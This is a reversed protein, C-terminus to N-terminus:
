SAISKESYVWFSYMGKFTEPFTQEFIHWNKLSQMLVDNPFMNKYRQKISGLPLDFGIFELELRTLIEDIQLLTFRKEHQHFLLDRCTSTTYFDQLLEVSKILEGNPMNLINNRCKRIDELTDKFGNRAIYRFAELIEQRAVDSYLGINMWGYDKLLSILIFWGEIPDQMHHLVGSCDIVDFKDDLKKLDLIDGQIFRINSIGMEKAMRMSYSLSSLSLDIATVQCAHYHWAYNLAHFGTGCGAILINPSAPWTISKKKLYPFLATLIQELTGGGGGRDLRIWNPYPHEEYQRRVMQSITDHIPNLLPIRSHLEIETKRNFIQRKLISYFASDKSQFTNAFFSNFLPTTHLPCYCALLAILVKTENNLVLEQHFIHKWLIEVIAKENDTVDYIYENIYCQQALAYIFTRQSELFAIDQFNLLLEKRKVTLFKELFEDPLVSNEMLALLLPETVFFSKQKLLSIGAMALNQPNISDNKLCLLVANEINEDSRNFRHFRVLDAFDIMYEVRNSKAVIKAFESFAFTHDEFAKKLGPIGLKLFDPKLNIAQILCFVAKDELGNKLYNASEQMLNLFLLPDYNM